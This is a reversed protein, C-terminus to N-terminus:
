SPSQKKVGAFQNNKRSIEGKIYLAFDSLLFNKSIESKKSRKEKVVLKAKIYNL